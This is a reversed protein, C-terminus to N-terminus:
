GKAFAAQAAKVEEDTAKRVPPLGRKARRVNTQKRLKDPDHATRSGGRDGGYWTVWFQAWTQEELM